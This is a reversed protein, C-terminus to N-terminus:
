AAPGRYRGMENRLIDKSREALDEPGDKIVGIWALGDDAVLRRVAALADSVQGEPLEDVLQRLEERESIRGM